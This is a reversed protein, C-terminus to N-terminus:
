KSLDLTAANSSARGTGTAASGNAGPGGGTTAQASFTTMCNTMVVPAAGVYGVDVSIGAAGGGGGGGNGGTGGMGGPCGPSSQVGPNGGPQGAQGDGGSGGNSAFAATLICTDFTLSSNFSLVAFSSGGGPGGTGGGGGCGGCGGGGGSGNTVGVGGGGGGGGQAVSSTSGATGALAQWGAASLLGYAAAGAGPGAAASYAGPDGAKCGNLTDPAGAGHLGDHAPDTGTPLAPLTPSGNGGPLGGTTGSGGGQGASSVDGNECKPCMQVAGTAGGDGNYGAPASSGNVYNEGPAGADPTPGASGATVTVRRFLATTGSAFIGTSTTGPASGAQSDFELDEFTTASVNTLQLAYGASSPAVVPIRSQSYSWDTCSFGGYMSLTKAITVTEAYAGACVFINPRSGNAAYVAAAISNFPAAKTGTGGSKAGANVFLGNSETVCATQPSLDLATNCGVPPVNQDGNAMADSSGGDQVTADSTGGDVVGCAAGECFSADSCNLAAFSILPLAGVLLLRAKM